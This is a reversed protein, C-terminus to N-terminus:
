TLLEEEDGLGLVVDREVVRQARFGRCRLVVAQSPSREQPKDISAARLVRRFGDPSLLNRGRRSEPTLSHM